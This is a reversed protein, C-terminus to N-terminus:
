AKKEEKQLIAELAKQVGRKKLVKRLAEQVAADKKGAYEKDEMLKSLEDIFFSGLDKFRKTKDEYLAKPWIEKLVRNKTDYPLTDWVIRSDRFLRDKRQGESEARQKADFELKGDELAQLKQEFEKKKREQDAKLVEELNRFEIEKRRREQESELQEKLKRSRVPRKQSKASPM